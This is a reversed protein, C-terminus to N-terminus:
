AAGGWVCTVRNPGAGEIQRAEAFTFPGWAQPRSDQIYEVVIFQATDDFTNAELRDAERILEKAQLRLDQPTRENKDHPM